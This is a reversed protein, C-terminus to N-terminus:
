ESKVSLDKLEQYLERERTSLNGPVVVRVRAYLDGKSGSGGLGRGKIRIRREGEIGAPLNIEATGGVLPVEVKEGLAAEAPSVPVVVELDMGSVKFKPHEAIKVTLYLDGRPRGGGINGGEGSLRLRKGDTVGNPITVQYSKTTGGKSGASDTTLTVSRKGGIYAEELSITLEAEHDQGRAAQRTERRNFVGSFVTGDKEQRGFGGFLSDFFDSFGSEGYQDSTFGFGQSDGGRPRGGPHWGPSATFDDGMRWNMGLQDYKKRNEPNGIVEYAENINKFRDEARFDSNVDPHYTRALKRYAAQIEDRSSSRGVGLIQYYDQYTVAM